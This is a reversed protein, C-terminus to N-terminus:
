NERRIGGTRCYALPLCVAVVFTLGLLIGENSFFAKVTRSFECLLTIVFLILTYMVIELMPRKKGTSKVMCSLALSIIMFVSMTSLAIFFSEIGAFSGFHATRSLIFSQYDQRTAYSGLSFTVFFMVLAFKVATFLLSLLPQRFHFSHTEGAICAYIASVFAPTCFYIFAGFVDDRDASFAFSGNSLDTLSINGTFLLLNTFLAFVFLFVGFRTIIRVGKLAAYICAALLCLGVLCPRVGPYYKECFMDTYPLLVYAAVYEFYVACIVAIPLRLKPTYRASLTLFDSGTRRMILISPLLTLACVGLGSLMCLLNVTFSSRPSVQRNQLLIVSCACLMLTLMLRRSSYKVEM